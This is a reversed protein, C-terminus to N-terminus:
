ADVLLQNLMEMVKRQREQAVADPTKLVYFCPVGLQLAHLADVSMLVSYGHYMARQRQCVQELRAQQERATNDWRELAAKDFKTLTSSM